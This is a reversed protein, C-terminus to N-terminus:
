PTPDGPGAEPPEAFEIMEGAAAKAPPREPISRVRFRLTDSSLRVSVLDGIRVPHSAKAAVGNVQVRGADCTARALPRRPM